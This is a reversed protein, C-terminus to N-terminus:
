RLRKLASAGAKCGMSYDTMLAETSSGFISSQLTTKPAIEIINLDSPPNRMFNVSAEYASEHRELMETMTRPLAKGLRLADIRNRWCSQTLDRPNTRIVVIKRAGQAYAKQVPIPDAVGGDVLLDDDTTVGDKYLFPIASSAKMCRIANTHEPVLYTASLNSKNTAVFILQRSDQKSNIRKYPLSNGVDNQITSFYSDLDLMGCRGLWRYPVFFSPAATFEGIAQKAYGPLGIFYTFLNQAGASAGIGIDFPNFNSAQFTDLVGATFIGRQGGGEAVIATPAHAPSNSITAKTNTKKFRMM